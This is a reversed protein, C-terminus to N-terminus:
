IIEKAYESLLKFDQLQLQKGRSIFAKPSCHYLPFVTYGNWYVPTAVNEKLVINHKSIYHLGKLAKGGLTVIIKPNILDIVEKLYISCNKIESDKPKENNGLKDRPNCLVANTIFFQKRSWGISTILEEFNKGTQDGSFPVKSIDAGLRGPAEGIFLVRSNISGCQLGLVGERELMRKCKDCSKVCSVLNNFNDLRDM